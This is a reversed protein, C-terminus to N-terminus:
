CLDKLWVYEHPLCFTHIHRNSIGKVSTAHSYVIQVSPHAGSCDPCRNVIGQAINTKCGQLAVGDVLHSLYGPLPFFTNPVTCTPPPQVASCCWSHHQTRGELEPASLIKRTCSCFFCGLLKEFLFSLNILNCTGEGQSGLTLKSGSM